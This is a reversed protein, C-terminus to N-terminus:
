SHSTNKMCGKRRGLDEIVKILEDSGTAKQKSFILGLSNFIRTVIEGGDDWNTYIAYYIAYYYNERVSGALAAYPLDVCNM